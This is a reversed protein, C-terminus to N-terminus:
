PRHTLAYALFDPYPEWAHDGYGGAMLWAQPVGLRKLQEFITVDREFMQEKTLRLGQTSPLGDREYPDAGALVFAIEPLPYGELKALADRLRPVYAKEEGSEIPVDIDSPTYSPHRAGDADREPIDLPWGSAMHVSLSIVSDDGETLAATGDGKHADVDIVWATRIASEAQLKRIAIVSDNVVCFGHGFSYHGHHAGGGLYFCFEHELAERGCQYTGALGKLTGAFMESLERTAITPDYRHYNGNEDVLEFVAVLAAELGDGFLREVYEPDHVRELDARVIESGDPGLLWESEPGIGPRTMLAELIRDARNGAAPILIGFDRLPVRSGKYRLIM